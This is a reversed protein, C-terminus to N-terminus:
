LFSLAEPKNGTAPYNLWATRWTALESQQETTLLSYWLPNIKDITQAFMESREARRQEEESSFTKVGAEARKIRIRTEVKQTDLEYSCGDPVFDEPDANNAVVIRNKFNGEEDKIILIM